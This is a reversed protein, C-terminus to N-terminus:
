GVVEAIRLLRASVKLKARDAAKRNIQLGLKAGAKKFNAVGGMSAFGGSDSVTFVSRSALANIVDRHMGRQSAPLYLIHCGDLSTLDSRQSVSVKREGVTRGGIVDSARSAFGSDNLVCIVFPAGAQSFSTTPWDVFRTFNLLFAAKVEDESAGGLAASPAISLVILSLGAVALLRTAARLGVRASPRRSRQTSIRM